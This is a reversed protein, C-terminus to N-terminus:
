KKVAKKVNEQGILVDAIGLKIAESANMFYDHGKKMIENVNAVSMKTENSLANVMMSQVYQLDSNENNIQFVTGFVVSSIPHMMIRTSKGVFRHGKEGSALLLVGASMVKGLAITHIPCKLYKIVDYLSFMEDVSGGYTSIVLKIPENSQESLSILQSIVGAILHETVSGYLSVIRGGPMMGSQLQLMGADNNEFRYVDDTDIRGM